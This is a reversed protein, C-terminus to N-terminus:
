FTLLAPLIEAIQYLYFTDNEEYIAGEGDRSARYARCRGDTYVLIGTVRSLGFRNMILVLYTVLQYECDTENPKSQIEVVCLAHQYASGQIKADRSSIIYDARGSLEKEAGESDQLVVSITDGTSNQIDWVKYVLSTEISEKYDSFIRSATAQREDAEPKALEFHTTAAITRTYWSRMTEKADEDGGTVITSAHITDTGRTSRSKNLIVPPFPANLKLTFV